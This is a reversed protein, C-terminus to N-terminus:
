KATPEIVHTVEFFSVFRFPSPDNDRRKDPANGFFMGSEIGEFRYQVGKQISIGSRIMINIPSALKQGDVESVALSNGDKAGEALIGYIIVRTGLPKGLLGKVNSPPNLDEVRTEARAVSSLGLILILCLNIHTRM